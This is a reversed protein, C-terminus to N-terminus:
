EPRCRSALTQRALMMHDTTARIFHFPTFRFQWRIEKWWNSILELSYRVSIGDQLHANRRRGILVALEGAFQLDAALLESEALAVPFVGIGHRVALLKAQDQLLELSLRAGTILVVCESIPGFDPLSSLSTEQRM